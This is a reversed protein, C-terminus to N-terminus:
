GHKMKWMFCKEFGLKMLHAQPGPILIGHQRPAADQRGPHDEDKATAWPTSGAAAADV